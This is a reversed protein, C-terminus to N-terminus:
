GGAKQDIYKSETLCRLSTRESSWQLSLIARDGSRSGQRLDLPVQHRHAQLAPSASSEHCATSSVSQRHVGEYPSLAGPRYGELLQETTLKSLGGGSSHPKDGMDAKVVSEEM